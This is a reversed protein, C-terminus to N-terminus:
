PLDSTAVKEGNRVRERDVLGQSAIQATWAASAGGALVTWVEGPLNVGYMALPVAGIMALLLTMSAGIAGLFKRSKHAPIPKEAM